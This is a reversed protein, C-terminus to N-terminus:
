IFTNEIILNGIVKKFRNSQKKKAKREKRRIMKAEKVM